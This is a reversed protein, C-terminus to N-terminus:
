VMNEWEVGGDRCYIWEGRVGDGAVVGVTGGGGRGGPGGEPMGVADDGGGFTGVVAQDAYGAAPPAPVFPRQHINTVEVQYVPRVPQPPQHPLHHPVRPLLDSTKEKLPPVPSYSPQSVPSTTKIRNSEIQINSTPTTAEKTTAPPLPISIHPCIHQRLFPKLRRSPGRVRSIPYISSDM